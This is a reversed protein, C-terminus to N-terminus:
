AQIFIEMAADAQPTSCCSRPLSTLNCVFPRKPMTPAGNMALAVSPRTADLLYIMCWWATHLDRLLAWAVLSNSAYSYSTQGCARRTADNSCLAKAFFSFHIFPTTSVVWFLGLNHMDMSSSSWTSSYRNPFTAYGLLLVLGLHHQGFRGAVQGGTENRERNGRAVLWLMKRAIERKTRIKKRAYCSHRGM